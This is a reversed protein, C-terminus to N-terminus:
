DLVEEIRGAAIRATSGGAFVMWLTDRIVDVRPRGFFFDRDQPYADIRDATLHAVHEITEACSFRGYVNEIIPRIKEATTM